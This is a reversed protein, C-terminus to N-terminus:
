RGVSRRAATAQALPLSWVDGDRDIRLVTGPTGSFVFPQGIGAVWAGGDADTLDAHGGDVRVSAVDSAAVRQWGPAGALVTWRESVYYSGDQLLLVAPNGTRPDAASPTLQRWPGYEQRLNQLETGEPGSQQDPRAQGQVVPPPPGAQHSSVHGAVGLGLGAAALVAFGTASVWRWPTSRGRSAAPRAGPRAPPGPVPSEGLVQGLREREAADLVGAHKDMERYSILFTRARRELAATLGEKHYSRLLEELTARDAEDLIAFSGGPLREKADIMALFDLVLSPGMLRLM